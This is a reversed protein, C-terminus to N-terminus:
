PAGFYLPALEQYLRPFRMRASSNTVMVDWMSTNAVMVALTMTILSSGHGTETPEFPAELWRRSKTGKKWVAGRLWLGDVVVRGPMKEAGRADTAGAAAM